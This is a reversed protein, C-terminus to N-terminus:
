KSENRRFNKCSTGKIFEFQLMKPCTQIVRAMVELIGLMEGGGAGM